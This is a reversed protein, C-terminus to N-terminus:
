RGVQGKNKEEEPCDEAVQCSGTDSGKMFPLAFGGLSTTGGFSMSSGGLGEDVAAPRCREALYQSIRQEGRLILVQGPETAILIPIDTIALSQMLALNVAPRYDALLTAGPFSFSAIPEVPNFRVPCLNEERLAEIV